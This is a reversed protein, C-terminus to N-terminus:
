SAPKSLYSQNFTLTIVFTTSGSPNFNMSSLVAGSLEPAKEFQSLQEALMQLSAAQGSLELTGTYGTFKAETYFVQPLTNQELFPFVNATFLHSSLVSKLNVIQSYINIFQQQDQQSISNSLQALNQDLAQSRSQLYNEYGVKLGFYVLLSFAFLLLSFVFLRWPTGISVPSNAFAENLSTTPQQQNQEPDM